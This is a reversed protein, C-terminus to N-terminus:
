IFTEEEPRIKENCILHWAVRLRHMTRLLYTARVTMKAFATEFHIYDRRTMQAYRHEANM